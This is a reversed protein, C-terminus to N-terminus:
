RAKPRALAVPGSRAAVAPRGATVRGRRPTRRGGLACRRRRATRGPRRARNARRGRTRRTTAALRRGARLGAPAWRRLDRGTLPVATGRKVAAVAFPLDALALILQDPGYETVLADPEIGYEDTAHSALQELRLRHEHRSIETGHATNVVKDLEGSVTAAQARVSKLAETGSASAAEAESRQEAAQGLSSEAASLAHAAGAAVARAVSAQATRQRRRLAARERAAREAAASATLSDARGSIARLREEVTRVELRAEMEANRAAAARETLEEREEGSSHDEFDPDSSREEEAEAEALENKLQQHKAQDKEASRLAAGVSADLRKAEDAAARSAGALRGLRGSIEAAAADVARMRARVEEMEQRAAEQAESAAALADAAAEEALEAQALKGAAEDAAARVDLLSQGGASGGRAWHAGILDGDATVARFEPHDRVFASAQTLDATVVVDGLLAAIAGAM